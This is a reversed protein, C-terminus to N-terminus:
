RHKPQHFVLSLESPKTKDLFDQIKSKYMKAVLQKVSGQKSFKWGSDIEKLIDKMQLVSEKTAKKMFIKILFLCNKDGRKHLNALVKGLKKEYGEELIENFLIKLAEQPRRCTGIDPLYVQKKNGFESLLIIGAKLVEDVGEKDILAKIFETNIKDGSRIQYSYRFLLSRRLEEVVENKLHTM